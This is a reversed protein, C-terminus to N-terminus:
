IATSVHDADHARGRRKSFLLQLGLLALGLPVVSQPIYEPFTWVSAFSRDGGEYLQIVHAASYWTLALCVLATLFDTLRELRAHWLPSLHNILLEVKVHAEARMTYALSLFAIAPMAYAALQDVFGLSKNFVTRMSVEYAFLLVLAFVLAGAAVGGAVSLCSMAADLRQLLSRPPSGREQAGATKRQEM